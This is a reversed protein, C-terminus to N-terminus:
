ELFRDRKVGTLKFRLRVQQHDAKTIGRTMQSHSVRNNPDFLGDMGHREQLAARRHCASRAVITWPRLKEITQGSLWARMADGGDLFFFDFGSDAVTM